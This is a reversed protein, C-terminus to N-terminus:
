VGHEVDKDNGMGNSKGHVEDGTTISLDHPTVYQESVIDVDVGMRDIPNLPLIMQKSEQVRWPDQPVEHASFRRRECHVLFTLSYLIDYVDTSSSAFDVLSRHLRTAAITM